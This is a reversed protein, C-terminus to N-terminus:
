APEVPHAHGREDIDCLDWGRFEGTEVIPIGFIAPNVASELVRQEAHVAQLTFPHIVVTRKCGARVPGAARIAAQIDSLATM